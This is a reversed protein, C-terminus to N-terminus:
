RWDGFLTFSAWYFPHSMGPQQYVALEAEDLAAALSKGKVLGQYFQVMLKETAEDAVSWLSAVVSQGGAVRFAEALNTIAAGPHGEQLATKCASLTVLRVGQWDLDYIETARFKSTEGTGAMVLYSNKPDSGSLEGHTALHVYGTGPELKRLRASSAESGLYPHSQPFSQSISIVEREAGPLSGDPNGLACLLKGKTESGRPILDSTKVLNVCQHKEALFHPKGQADLQCLAPYPVYHLIGGPVLALVPRGQLDNEIPKILWDYLRNLDQKLPVTHRQYGPSAPDTWSFGEPHGAFASDTPFGTILRRTRLVCQELEKATVPVKHIKLDNDRSAVFLYLGDEALFYLVATTDAPISRKLELFEVPRVAMAAEYQPHSRRLDAVVRQYEGKNHALLQETAQSDRGLSRDSALQQELVAMDGRVRQVERLQEHGRLSQQNQQAMELEQQRSLTQWAQDAKGQQIQLETLLQYARKYKSRIREVGAQTADVELVYKEVTNTAAQLSSIARAVQGQAVQLEATLTLARVSGESQGLRNSTERLQRLLTEAEAEWGKARQTLLLDLMGWRPDESGQYGVGQLGRENLQIAEMGLKRAKQWTQPDLKGPHHDLLDLLQAQRMRMRSLAWDGSTVSLKFGKPLLTLLDPPLQKQIEGEAQLVQPEQVVLTTELQNLIKLAEDTGKLHLAVGQKHLQVLYGVLHFAWPLVEFDHMEGPRVMSVLRVLQDAELEVSQSLPKEEPSDPQIQHDRYSACLEQLWSCAVESLIRAAQPRNTAQQLPVLSKWTLDHRRCLNDVSIDPAKELSRFEAFSQSLFIWTPAVQAPATQVATQFPGLYKATIDPLAGKHAALLLSAYVELLEEPDGQEQAWAVLQDGQQRALLYQGGMMRTKSLLLDVLHAVKPEIEGAALRRQAIKQFAVFIQENQRLNGLRLLLDSFFQLGESVSLESSANQAVRFAPVQVPLRPQPRAWVGSSLCLSLGGFVIWHKM